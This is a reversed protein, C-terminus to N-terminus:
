RVSRERRFLTRSVTWAGSAAKAAKFNYVEDDDVGTLTHTGNTMHFGKAVSGFLWYVEDHASSENSEELCRFSHAKITYRNAIAQAQMPVATEPMVARVLSSAHQGLVLSPVRMPDRVHGPGAHIRAIDLDRVNPQGLVGEVIGPAMQALNAFSVAGNVNLTAFRDPFIQHRFDSPTAKHAHALAHILQEGLSSDLLTHVLHSELDSLEKGASRKACALFYLALLWNRPRNVVFKRRAKAGRGVNRITEDWRVTSVAM